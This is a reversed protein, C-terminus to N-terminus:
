GSQPRARLARTLAVIEAIIAHHANLARNDGIYAIIALDPSLRAIFAAFSFDASQGMNEVTTRRRADLVYTRPNSKENLSIPYVLLLKQNGGARDSGHVM